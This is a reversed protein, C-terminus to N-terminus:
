VNDPLIIRISYLIDPILIVYQSVEADSSFDLWPDSPEVAESVIVGGVLHSISKFEIQCYPCTPKIKSWELICKYCYKHVCSNLTAVDEFAELCICCKEVAKEGEM